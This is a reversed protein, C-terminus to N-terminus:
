PKASSCQSSLFTGNSWQAVIIDHSANAAPDFFLATSASPPEDPGGNFGEGYLPGTTFPSSFTSHPSSTYLQHSVDQWTWSHTWQKDIYMFYYTGHLVTINEDPNEFFLLVESSNADSKSNPIPSVSLARSGSAAVYGSLNSVDTQNWQGGVFQLTALSSNM